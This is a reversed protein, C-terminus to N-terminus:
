GNIKSAIIKSVLNGMGQQPSIGSLEGAMQRRQSIGQMMAMEQDPTPIPAKNPNDVKRLANRETIRKNRQQMYNRREKDTMNGVPVEYEAPIHVGNVVMDKAFPNNPDPSKAPPAQRQPAQAVSKSIPKNPNVRVASPKSGQVPKLAQPKPQSIPTMVQTITNSKPTEKIENSLGKTFKSVMRKLIDVELDSFPTEVQVKSVLTRPDPKIGLLVKLQEEIFKRIQKQVSAVAKPDADVDSFLDHTLIMKYLSGMELRLNFDNMLNPDIEDDEEEAELQIEEYGEEFEEDTIPLSRNSKQEDSLPQFGEEEEEWYSM